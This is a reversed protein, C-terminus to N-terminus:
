ARDAGFPFTLQRAYSTPFARDRLGVESAGVRRPEAYFTGFLRDWLLLFEGFNVQADEFERKHHWRHLEAGGIWGRLPGLTYDFNAHQFALHVTLIGLWAALVAPAVGSALLVTLGPAAMMVAHLPHRREGNLWYLREASHHVAHYRWLWRSRHSALHVGYLSLDLVLAVIALQVLLPAESPFVRWAPPLLADLAPAAVAATLQLMSLNVLSHWLDTVTDGHDHLWDRHFPQVRELLAVCLLGVAVVISSLPWYDAGTRLLWIQAM